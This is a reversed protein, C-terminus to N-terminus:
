DLQTKNTYLSHSKVFSNAPVVLGTSETPIISARKGIYSQEKITVGAGIYAKVQVIINESLTTNHALYSQERIQCFDGIHCDNGLIAGAGIMIGQGLQVTEPVISTPHILNICDVKQNKIQTIQAVRKVRNREQVSDRPSWNTAVFYEYDQGWDWTEESGVVAVGCIHETNNYYDSDIIGVLERGQLRVLDVMQLLNYNSGIFVVPRM